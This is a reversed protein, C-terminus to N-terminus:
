GYLELLARILNDNTTYLGGEECNFVGAVFKAKKCDFGTEDVIKNHIRRVDEVRANTIEGESFRVVKYSQSEVDKNTKYVRVCPEGSDCDGPSTVPAVAPSVDRLRPVGSALATFVLGFLAVIVILKRLM